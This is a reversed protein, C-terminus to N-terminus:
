YRKLVMNIAFWQTFKPISQYLETLSCVSQKPVVGDRLKKNINYFFLKYVNNHSTGKKQSTLKKLIPITNQM